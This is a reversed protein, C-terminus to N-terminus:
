QPNGFNLQIIHCYYIRTYIYIYLQVKSVVIYVLKIGLCHRRIGKCLETDSQMESFCQRSLSLSTVMLALGRESRNAVSSLPQPFTAVDRWAM